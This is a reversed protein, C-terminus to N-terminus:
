PSADPPVVIVSLSDTRGGFSAILTRRGPARFDFDRPGVPYSTRGDDEIARVVVPAGDLVNGAVDTVIARFNVIAGVRITDLRPQIHVRAIPLTVVIEGDLARAAPERVPMTDIESRLGAVRVTARGLRHAVAFAAAQGVAPRIVIQGRRPPPEDILSAVNTDSIRWGSDPTIGWDGHLCSSGRCAVEEIWLRITDGVTIWRDAVGPGLDRRIISTRRVYERRDRDVRALVTSDPYPIEPAVYEIPVSVEAGDPQLPTWHRLTGTAPRLRFMEAILATDRIVIIVRGADV